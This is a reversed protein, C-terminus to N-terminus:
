KAGVGDADPEIDYDKLHLGIAFPALAAVTEQPWEGCVISNAVDLMVGVSPSDVTRLIQILQPSTTLFHNEIGLRVASNEYAPAVEALVGAAAADDVSGADEFLVVRVVDAELARAVDLYHTL